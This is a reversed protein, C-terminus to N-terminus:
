FFDDIKYFFDKYNSRLIIPLLESPDILAIILSLFLDQWIITKEKCKITKVKIIMAFVYNNIPKIKKKRREDYIHLNQKYNKIFFNNPREYEKIKM